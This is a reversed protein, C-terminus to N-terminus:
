VLPCRVPGPAAECAAVNVPGRGTCVVALAACLVRPVAANPVPWVATAVRALPLWTAAAGVAAAAAGTWAAGGTV